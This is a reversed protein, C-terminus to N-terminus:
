PLSDQAPGVWSFAELKTGTTLVIEFVAQYEHGEVIDSSAVPFTYDFLFNYPGLNQDRFTYGSTVATIIVASTIVIDEISTEPTESTLDYLKGTITSVQAATIFNGEKAQRTWAGGGDRSHARAILTHTKGIDWHDIRQTKM